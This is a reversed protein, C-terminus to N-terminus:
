FYSALGESQCPSPFIKPAAFFACKQSIITRLREQKFYFEEGLILAFIKELVPKKVYKKKNKTVLLSESGTSTEHHQIQLRSRVIM